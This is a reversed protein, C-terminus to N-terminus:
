ASSPDVYAHIIKKALSDPTESQAQALRSLAEFTTIDDDQWVLELRRVKQMGTHAYDSPSAWFCNQRDIPQRQTWDPCREYSWSKRRNCSACLLM